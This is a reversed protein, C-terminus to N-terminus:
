SLDIYINGSCRLSIATFDGAIYVISKANRYRMGFIAACIADFIALTFPGKADEALHVIKKLLLFNRYFFLCFLSCAPPWTACYPSWLLGRFLSTIRLESVELQYHVNLTKSYYYYNQGLVWSFICVQKTILFVIPMFCYM